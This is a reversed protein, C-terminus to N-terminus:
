YDPYPPLTTYKGAIMVFIGVWMEMYKEVMSNMRMIFMSIKGDATLMIRTM